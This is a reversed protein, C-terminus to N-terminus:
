FQVGVRASIEHLTHGSDRAGDDVGSALLQGPAVARQVSTQFPGGKTSPSVPASDPFLYVAYNIGVRLHRTAWYNLGFELTQVDIDGGPTKSNAVGSRAAGDYSLHLQEFKALAQVGHQAPRQPTSLDVHIPRGYSPYGIVDHSGVLWYGVQAYWAYGDLKGTRETFRSIQFGDIAERTNDNIYVFEGTLDFGDWPVYVDAAIGWQEASPIIHILRGTSDKYTPKWFAFGDQTTLAPLDYGVKSPDRSGYKASVGVHGWRMPGETGFPRVVLRGAFDYRTDVNVRNPGDGNVVAVAYYVSRGPSEGWFMAGVDRQLPAGLNRVAMSRELFATTNDSIRNELSFPLYFQGVQVNGWPSPGYNVFVDTPIPKVTAAEVPNTQLTACNPASSTPTVTCTPTAQAAAANDISTTSSFEAGVQWQWTEFFEGALELRARRVFFGDNIGSGPPLKSAGAALQDIWDAHVRGMIYLRFVDDPSHILFTGNHYGASRYVNPPLVDTIPASPLVSPTTSAPPPPAAPPPVLPEAQQALSVPTALLASTALVFAFLTASRSM